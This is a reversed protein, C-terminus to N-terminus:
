ASEREILEVDVYHVPHEKDPEKLMELLLSASRQGIEYKNVHITTLTPTILASFSINDFGIIAVDEPVKLGMEKCSQIAGMALLDNYCFLASMESNKSLLEKAASFGHEM